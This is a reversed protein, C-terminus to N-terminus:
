TLYGNIEKLDHIIPILKDFNIIELLRKVSLTPNLIFVKKNEEKLNNQTRAIVGFGTSSIYDVRSLDIVISKGMEDLEKLLASFKDNVDITIDANVEVLIYEKEEKTKFYEM